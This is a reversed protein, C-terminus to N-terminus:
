TNATIDSLLIDEIDEGLCYLVTSVQRKEMRIQFVVQKDSSNLDANGALGNMQTKFNFSGPAQLRWCDM